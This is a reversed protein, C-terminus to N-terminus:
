RASYFVIAAIVAAILVGPWLYKRPGNVPAGEKAEKVVGAIEGPAMVDANAHSGLAVEFRTFFEEAIKRASSEILRSGVQALKGGVAAEAVYRLETSTNSIPVLEVKAEGKAFGAAGGQGAFILRYSKPPSIDELTVKGKFRASVPGIKTVVVAELVHDDLQTLSECGPICQKLTEVDNLAKWATEQSVPLQRSSELKM